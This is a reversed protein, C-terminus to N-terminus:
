MAASVALFQWEPRVVKSEPYHYRFLQLLGYRWLAPIHEPLDHISLIQYSEGAGGKAPSGLKSTVSAPLRVEVRFVDQESKYGMHSKYVDDWFKVKGGKKAEDMKSYIALQGSGRRGFLFSKEQDYRVGCEHADLAISTLDISGTLSGASPIARKVRTRTTVNHMFEVEPAWGQVDMCMHVDVGSHEFSSMLSAAFEDAIHGSRQVGEKFILQPSLKVKMGGNNVWDKDHFYGFFIYVGVSRNVLQYRYGSEKGNAKSLRLKVGNIVVNKQPYDLQNRIVMGTMPNTWTDFVLEDLASVIFEGQYKQELTDVGSHLIEFNRMDKREIENNFWLGGEAPKKDENQRESLIFLQKSYSM